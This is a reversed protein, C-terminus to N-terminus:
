QNTNKSSNDRNQDDSNKKRNLVCDDYVQKNKQYKSLKTNKRKKLDMAKLTKRVLNKIEEDSYNNPNMNNKSKRDKKKM